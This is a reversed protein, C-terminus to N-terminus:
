LSWNHWLTAVFTLTTIVFLCSFLATSVWAFCCVIHANGRDAPWDRFIQLPCELDDLIVEKGTGDDQQEALFAFSLAKEFTVTAGSICLQTVTSM